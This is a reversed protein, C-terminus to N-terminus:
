GNNDGIIISVNSGGFAFSNSMIVHKELKQEGTVLNVPFLDDDVEHDWMHPPLLNESNFSSLLLWCLGLEIAGSAGLTHGVLPKTSSCLVTEGFVRGIAKSEMADNMPTATGHLNVYGIDDFLMDANNLAMRMATEAGDGEPHPASIHYADSSEGVGLLSLEGASRQLLFLAAGEGISIGNRNKSFPNCIDASISNLSDFGNLTLGCLSDSGGVICADLVGAQMLRSAAAFVKASSACATSITYAIGSLGAIEALFKSGCGIEQQTFNYWKPLSGHLLRYAVAAEGEAIGSTSTGLIIGIRSSEIQTKLKEVDDRIQSYAALLMQNTRSTFRSYVGPIEPLKSQVSGTITPMGTNLLDSACMGHQSGKVLGDLIDTKNDGLACVIGMNAIAINKNRM